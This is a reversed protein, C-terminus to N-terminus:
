YANLWIQVEPSIARHVLRANNHLFDLTESVQLLGHKIELLGMEQLGVDLGEFWVFCLFSFRLTMKKLETILLREIWMHVMIGGVSYLTGNRDTEISCMHM